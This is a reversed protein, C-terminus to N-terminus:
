RKVGFAGDFFGIMREAYEDPRQVPGDCHYAEDIVWVEANDGAFQAYHHAYRAESGLFPRETGGAVLVIPRPAIEGIIEIMAPPAEIKLIRQYQWDIMYNGMNVLWMILNKPPVNDGARIISAGDAWVAGIEPYYAAGQLAIQGGISCGGIGIKAPDVEPRSSLFAVAGGVDHEDEWGYSRYEGESEGSAREDYMLVGYGAEVLREAHWRMGLRNGGYGHLLIVTVGNESPVFWGAIRLGDTSLFTVEEVDFSLDDPIKVQSPAPTTEEVTSQYNMMLMLAVTILVLSFLGFATLRLTKILFRKWRPTTADDSKSKASGGKRRRSIAIVALLGLPLGIIILWAALPIQTFSYFYNM